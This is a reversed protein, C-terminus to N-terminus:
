AKIKNKEMLGAFKKIATTWGDTHEAAEVKDVFGEHTLTVRTTKGLDEFDVTVLTEPMPNKEWSWTFQLRKNRTIKTYNGFAIHNGEKSIMHIRYAGGVKSDASVSKCEIKIPSWWQVMQKPETWAKFVMACPAKIVRTVVLRLTSDKSPTKNKTAM